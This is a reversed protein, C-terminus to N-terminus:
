PWLPTPRYCMICVHSQWIYTFNSLGVGVLNDSNRSSMTPSATILWKVNFYRLESYIEQFIRAHKQNKTWRDLWLKCCKHPTQASTELIKYQFTLTSIIYFNTINQPLIKTIYSTSPNHYPLLLHSIILDIANINIKLLTAMKACMESATVFTACHTYTPQNTSPGHDARRVQQTRTHKWIKTLCFNICRVQRYTRCKGQLWLAGDKIRAACYGRHSEHALRIWPRQRRVDPPDCMVLTMIFNVQSVLGLRYCITSKNDVFRWHRLVISVVLTNCPVWKSGNAAVRGTQAKSTLLAMRVHLIFNFRSIWQLLIWQQLMATSILFQTHLIEIQKM